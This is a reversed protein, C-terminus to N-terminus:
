SRGLVALYIKEAGGALLAKAANNATAGTTLLDDVLLIKKPMQGAQVASFADELNRRREAASLQTQSVTDRCRRLSKKLPLALEKAVVEALLVAQDFGRQRLKQPHLPIPVVADLHPWNCKTIQQALLKGFGAAMETRGGYKYRRIAEKLQGAYLGVACTHAFLFKQGSCRPCNGNSRAPFPYGCLSCCRSIELVQLRCHSCLITNAALRQRCFLCRPPFLLDWLASLM